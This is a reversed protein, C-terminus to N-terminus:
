LTQVAVGPSLRGRQPPEAVVGDHSSARPVALEAMQESMGGIPYIRAGGWQSAAPHASPHTVFTVDAQRARGVARTAVERLRPGWVVLIFVPNTYGMPGFVAEVQDIFVVMLVGLSWSFAFTALFFTRVTRLSM